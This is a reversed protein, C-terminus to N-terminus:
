HFGLLNFLFTEKSEAEKEQWENSGFSFHKTQYHGSGFSSFIPDKVKEIENVWFAWDVPEQDDFDLSNGVSCHDHKFLCCEFWSPVINLLFIARQKQSVRLWKQYKFPTEWM